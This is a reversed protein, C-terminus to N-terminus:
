ECNVCVEITETDDGNLLNDRDHPIDQEKHKHARFHQLAESVVKSCLPLFMVAAIAQSFSAYISSPSRSRRQSSSFAM